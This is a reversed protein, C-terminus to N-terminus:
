MNCVTKLSKGAKYSKWSIAAHPQQAELEPSTRWHAINSITPQMLASSLCDWMLPEDDSSACAAGLEVKAPFEAANITASTELTLTSNM